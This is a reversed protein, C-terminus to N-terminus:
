YLRWSMEVNMQIAVPKGDKAAPAFKWQRVADIANQDFVKDSSRVLKVDDVEGKESVAAAVVASGNLKAKRAAEPYSPDPASTARPPRIGPGLILYKCTDFPTVATPAQPQCPEKQSEPGSAQASQPGAPAVASLQGATATLWLLISALGVALHYRNM